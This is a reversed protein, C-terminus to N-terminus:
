EYFSYDFMWKPVEPPTTSLLQRWKEDTLRNDIPQIFEYYTMTPGAGILIRGDPLLYAAILLRVYGTAEELVEQPPNQDTHVDAVITTKKAKEDVDNIVSNIYEDFNKIFDYDEKNLQENNLEKISISLLWSLINELNNLRIKAAEDIVNMDSLGNNTMRTLALLRNYFEPVPE